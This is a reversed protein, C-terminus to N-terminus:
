YLTKYYLYYYLMTECQVATIGFFKVSRSISVHLVKVSDSRVITSVNIKVTRSLTKAFHKELIVKICGNKYRNKGNHVERHGRRRGIFLIVIHDTCSHQVNVLLCYLLIAFIIVVFRSITIYLQLGRICINAYM